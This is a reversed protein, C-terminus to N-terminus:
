FFSKRKEILVGADDNSRKVLIHTQGPELKANIDDTEKLQGHSKLSRILVDREKQVDLSGSNWKSQRVSKTM